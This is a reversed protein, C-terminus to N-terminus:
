KNNENESYMHRALHKHFFEIEQLQVAFDVKAPSKKM